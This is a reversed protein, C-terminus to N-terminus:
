AAAALRRCRESCQRPVAALRASVSAGSVAPRTGAAGRHAVSSGPRRRVPGGRPARRCSGFGFIRAGAVRLGDHGRAGGPCPPVEGCAARIGNAEFAVASPMFPSMTEVCVSRHLATYVWAFLPLISFVECSVCLQVEMTSTHVVIGGFDTLNGGGLVARRRFGARRRRKGPSRGQVPTACLHALFQLFRPM